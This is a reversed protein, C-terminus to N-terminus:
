RWDLGSLTIWNLQFAASIDAPMNRTESLLTRRHRGDADMLMLVFEAKQNPTPNAYTQRCIAAISKGDPSFCAGLVEANLAATVQKPKAGSRDTVFIRSVRERYDFPVFLVKSSDPAFRCQSAEWDPDSLLCLESGDVKM